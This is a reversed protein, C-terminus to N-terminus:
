SGAMLGAAVLTDRLANVSTALTALSAADANAVHAAVPLDAPQVASDAKAGQAATAFYSIAKKSATGLTPLSDLDNYDNSTAVAAPTQGNIKVVSPEPFTGDLDGGAAGSPPLATPITAAPVMFFQAVPTAGSTDDPVRSVLSLGPPFTASTPQANAPLAASIDTTTANVVWGWWWEFVGTADITISPDSVAIIEGRRGLPTVTNNTPTNDLGQGDLRGSAAFCELINQLTWGRPKMAGNQAYISDALEAVDNIPQQDIITQLDM